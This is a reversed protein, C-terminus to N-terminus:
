FSAQFCFIRADVRHNAPHNFYIFFRANLSKSKIIKEVLASVKEALPVM